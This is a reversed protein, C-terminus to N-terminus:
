LLDLGPAKLRIPGSLKLHKSKLPEHLKVSHYKLQAAAWCEGAGIEVIRGDVITLDASKFNGTVEATFQLQAAGMGAWSLKLVPKVCSSVKHEGLFVTNREGHPHKKPDRYEQLERAKCWANALIEFVDCDLVDKIAGNVRESAIKMAFGPVRTQGVDAPKMENAVVEDLGDFRDPLLDRITRGYDQPTTDPM